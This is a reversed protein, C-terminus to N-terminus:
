RNSKSYYYKNKKKEALRIHRGIRLFLQQDHFWPSWLRFLYRIFVNLLKRHLSYCQFAIADRALWSAHLSSVSAKHRLKLRTLRDCTGRVRCYRCSTESPFSLYHFRCFLRNEDKRRIVTLVGDGLSLQCVRSLSLTYINISLSVAKRALLLLTVERRSRTVLPMYVCMCSSANCLM